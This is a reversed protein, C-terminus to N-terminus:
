CQDDNVNSVANIKRLKKFKNRLQLSHHLVSSQHLWQGGGPWRIITPVNVYYYIM